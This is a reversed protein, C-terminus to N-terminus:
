KTGGRKAEREIGQKLERGLTRVATKKSAAWASRFFPIPRANGHGYELAAPIYWRKGKMWKRVTKTKGQVTKLRTQSKGTFEPVDPRIGVRLGFSGKRQKKFVQIFVKRAILSGMEGGVMRKARRQVVVKVEKIAIRNAKKVISKAVKNGLKMLKADLEDFGELTKTQTFESQIFINAM